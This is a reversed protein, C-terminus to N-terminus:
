FKDGWHQISLTTYMIAKGIVKDAKKDYFIAIYYIQDGNPWNYSKNIIYSYVKTNGDFTFQHLIEMNPKIDEYTNDSWITGRTVSESLTGYRLVTQEKIFKLEHFLQDLEAKSAGIKLKEYTKKAKAAYCGTFGIALLFFTVLKFIKMKIEREYIALM